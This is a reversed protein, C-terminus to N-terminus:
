ESRHQINFMPSKKMGWKNLLYRGLTGLILFGNKYINVYNEEDAYTTEIVDEEIPIGRLKFQILIETDFHFYNSCLEFPIEELVKMQYIRYGSTYESLDWQLIFNQMFNLFHVGLFRILPMGGALPSGRFRSGFVLGSGSNILLELLRPADEPAYQADCHLMIVTDYDKEIAHRYAWKQSGGYGINNEMTYVNLHKLNNEEAYKRVVEATRDQSQNDVVYIESVNDRIFAPIREFVQCIKLEGNYAPLYIAVKNDLFYNKVLQSIIEQEKEM